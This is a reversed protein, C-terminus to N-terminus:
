RECERGKRLRSCFSQFGAIDKTYTCNASAGVCIAANCIVILLDNCFSLSNLQTPIVSRSYLSHVLPSIAGCSQCSNAKLILLNILCHMQSM